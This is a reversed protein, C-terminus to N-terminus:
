WKGFDAGFGLLIQTNDRLGGAVWMPCALGVRVYEAFSVSLAPEIRRGGDFQPFSFTLNAGTKYWKSTFFSVGYGLGPDFTSTLAGTKINIALLNVSVAPGFCTDPRSTLCGGFKPSELVTTTASEQAAATGALLALMLALIKM